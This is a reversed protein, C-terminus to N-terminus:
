FQYSHDADSITMRVTIGLRRFVAKRVDLPWDAPVKTSALKRMSENPIGAAAALDSWDLKLVHKRELVAALMWDVPPYKPQDHRTKPM